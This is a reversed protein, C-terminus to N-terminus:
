LAKGINVPRRLTVSSASLWAAVRDAMTIDIVSAATSPAPRAGSLPRAVSGIATITIPM